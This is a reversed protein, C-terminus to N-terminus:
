GRGKKSKREPTTKANRQEAEMRKEGKIAKKAGKGMRGNWNSM